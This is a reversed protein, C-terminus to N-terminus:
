QTVQVFEGNQVQFIYIKPELLDGEPTYRVRGILTESDTRRIADSVKASDFTKARRAGELLVEMASYGAPSYNGPNRFEVAQYAKWWTDDAVMLPSPSIASLYAGEAAHGSEDVFAYLFCGDSCLFPATVGAERLEPLLVYGETEYAALFVADPSAAQIQRVAEAHTDAGEKIEVVVAPELGSSQLASVMQDRLGRGYENDAHVVAIRSSGVTEVIFEADAPAQTADTANVRFFNTYGKQTLSVDSATPTIVVIDLDKYIEMAALTQGSNYHGIVGLVREGGQIAERISEAVTVAVDSDAEDDVVVVKVRYGLLGGARNAQEAALRVGGVVTQGGEAQFGSLPAIAYVIVDGKTPRSPGGCSTSMFLLLFLIWGTRRM